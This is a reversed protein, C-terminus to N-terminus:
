GSFKSLLGVALASLHRGIPFHNWGYPTFAASSSTITQAHFEGASPTVLGEGVAFAYLHRGIPSRSRGLATWLRVLAIVEGCFGVSRLLRLKGQVVQVQASPARLNESSRRMRVDQLPLCRLPCMANSDRSGKSFSLAM